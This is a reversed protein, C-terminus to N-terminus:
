PAFHKTISTYNNIRSNSIAYALSLSKTEITVGEYDACTPGLDSFVLPSYPAHKEQRGAIHAAQCLAIPFLAKKPARGACERMLHWYVQCNLVSM